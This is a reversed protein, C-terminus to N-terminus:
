YLDPLITWMSDGGQWAGPLLSPQGKATNSVTDRPSLFDVHNDCFLYNFAVGKGSVATMVASNSSNIRKRIDTHLLPLGYVGANNPDFMQAAPNFVQYGLNWNTCLAEESYSREVLLLAKGAPRVMSTKIWMPYRGGNGDWLQGIGRNLTPVPRPPVGFGPQRLDNIGLGRANCYYADPGWSVPMTYSLTSTSNLFTDRVTSTDNPCAFVPLM